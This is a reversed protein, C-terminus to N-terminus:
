DFKFSFTLQLLHKCTNLLFEIDTIKQALASGIQTISYWGSDNHNCFLWILANVMIHPRYTDSTGLKNNWWVQELTVHGWKM